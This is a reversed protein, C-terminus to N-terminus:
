LSPAQAPEVNDKLADDMAVAVMTWGVEFASDAAMDTSQRQVYDEALGMSFMGIKYVWFSSCFENQREKGNELTKKANM